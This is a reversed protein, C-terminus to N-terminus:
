TEAMKRGLQDTLRGFVLAGLVQGILYVTSSLGVQTASLSLTTPEVLVPALNAILSAELGDLTWTIGLAIIVRTHWRSWHLRDLRTPVDTAIVSGVPVPETVGM